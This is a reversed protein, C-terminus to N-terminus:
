QQSITTIHQELKIKQARLLAQWKSLNSTGLPVGHITSEWFIEREHAWVWEILDNQFSGILKVFFNKEHIIIEEQHNGHPFLKILLRSCADIQDTLHKIWESVHWTEKVSYPDKIDTEIDYRLTAYSMLVHEKQLAYMRLAKKFSKWIMAHWIESLNHYHYKLALDHTHELEHHLDHLVHTM